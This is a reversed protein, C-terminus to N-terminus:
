YRSGYGGSNRNSYSNNSRPAQPKAENVTITRGEFEMGNFSDIAQQAEAATSMEVFGFGKARGTERDTIIHTSDVQGAGSFLVELNRETTAYALGGVYLKSSM